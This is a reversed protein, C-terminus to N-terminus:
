SVAILFNYLDAYLCLCTNQQRSVSNMMYTQVLLMVKNSQTAYVCCIHVLSLLKSSQTAVRAAFKCTHLAEFTQLMVINM